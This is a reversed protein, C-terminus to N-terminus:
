IISEKWYTKLERKLLKFELWYVNKVKQPKTQQLIGKRAMKRLQEESFALCPMEKQLLEAAEKLTIKSM